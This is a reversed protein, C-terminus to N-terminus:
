LIKSKSVAANLAKNVLRALEADHEFVELAAETTGGKSAVKKTLESFDQEKIALNTAASATELVIKKANESNYGAQELYSSFYKFLLFYYAPGSGSIATGAHFQEENDLWITSGFSNLLITIEKKEKNNLDKTFALNTSQKIKAALNPMIRVIKNDPFYKKFLDIKRGALISIIMAEKTILEQYIEIVQSINQPKVAFIILNIEAMNLQKLDHYFNTRKKLNPDIIKISYNKSSIIADAIASGMNGYGIQLIKFSM